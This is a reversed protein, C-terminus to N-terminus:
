HRNYMHWLQSAKTIYSVVQLLYKKENEYVHLNGKIYPSTCTVYNMDSISQDHIFRSSALIGKM